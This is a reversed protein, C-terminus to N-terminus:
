VFCGLWFSLWASQEAFFGDLFTKPDAPEISDQRPGACAPAKGCELDFLPFPFHLLFWALLISPTLILAARKMAVDGSAQRKKQGPVLFTVGVRKLPSLEKHYM